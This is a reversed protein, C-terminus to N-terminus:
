YHTLINKPGAINEIEQKLIERLRKFFDPSGKEILIFQTAEVPLMKIDGSIIIAIIDPNLKQTQNILEVGNMEPMRFDTILIQPIISQSFDLLADKPSIYTYIDSFGYFQLVSKTLKLNIEIDDVIAIM